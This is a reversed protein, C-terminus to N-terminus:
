ALFAELEAILRVRPRAGLLQGIVEGGRFLILTPMARVGCAVTTHPNDDVDLKAVTLRGAYDAAVQELIPALAHCPPCWEAWFDVLVPVPSALVLDDFTADTVTISSRNQLSTMDVEPEPNV